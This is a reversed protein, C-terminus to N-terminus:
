LRPHPVLPSKLHQGTHWCFKRYNMLWRKGEAAAIKMSKLLTRNQREVEGNAQPWLPPSKRYDIGCEHLCREFEGSVFQAGKDTKLTNPFGFRAFIDTLAAIIGPTTTSKMVVVEFSRSYYDVVVLLNNGGPMPGMLDAVANQWRGTPSETKQMTEPPSYQETVQCGHCSRCMREVDGDMKSWWVNTRLRSKTKVVGQHGEHNLELVVKRLIQPIVIRDGGLVLKGIICLEKKVCTYGPMFCQSRDGTQVYHRVSALEPDDASEREIERPSLGIPTSEQAVFRGVDEKECSSDKPDSQNLRSLADALHTQGPRYVVRYNHCQLRLVCREIRASPKSRSRFICELPKYDTELEFDRGYM